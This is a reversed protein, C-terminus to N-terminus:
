WRHGDPRKPLVASPLLALPKPRAVRVGIVAEDEGGGRAEGDVEVVELPTVEVREEFCGGQRPDPEVIKPMGGGCKAEGVPLM